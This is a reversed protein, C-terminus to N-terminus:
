KKKKATKKKVTLMRGGVGGLGGVSGSRRPATSKKAAVKKGKPEDRLSPKFPKAPKSEKVKVGKKPSLSKVGPPLPKGKAVANSAVRANPGIYAKGGTIYIRQGDETTRWAGM